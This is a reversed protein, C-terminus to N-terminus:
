TPSYGAVRCGAAPYFIHVCLSDSGKFFLAKLEPLPVLVGFYSAEGQLRLGFSRVSETLRQYISQLKRVASDLVSEPAYPSLIRNVANPWSDHAQIRSAEKAPSRLYDELLCLLTAESIHTQNADRVFQDLFLLSTFPPSVSFLSGGLRPRVLTATASLSTM